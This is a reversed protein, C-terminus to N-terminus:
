RQRSFGSSSSVVGGHTVVAVAPQLRGNGLQGGVVVLQEREGGGDPSRRRRAPHSGDAVEHRLEGPHENGVAVTLVVADERGQSRGPDVRGVDGPELRVVGREV